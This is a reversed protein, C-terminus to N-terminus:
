RCAAYIREAEEDAISIGFGESLVASLDAASAAMRESVGDAAFTKYLLGDLTRRGQETKISLMPSRNFISDPHKECYFSPMVFDIDLQRELSFSYVRRWEDGHKECLTWGFFDEREM